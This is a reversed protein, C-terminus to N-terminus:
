QITSTSVVSSGAEEMINSLVSHLLLGPPVNVLPDRAAAAATGASIEFGQLGDCVEALHDLEMSLQYPGPPDVRNLVLVIM